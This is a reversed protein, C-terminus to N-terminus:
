RTTKCPSFASTYREYRFAIKVALRGPLILRAPSLCPRLGVSGDGCPKELVADRVNSKRAIGAKCEANTDQIM